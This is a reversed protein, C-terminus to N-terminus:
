RQQPFRWTLEVRTGAGPQSAVALLAGIIDAREQIGTLGFGEKRLRTETAFGRGDDSVCLRLEEGAFSLEVCIESAQAHRFANTIAEQGIRLLHDAVDAPLPRPVGNLRFAIRTAPDTILQEVM